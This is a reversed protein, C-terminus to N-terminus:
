LGDLSLLRKLFIQTPDGGRKGQELQIAALTAEREALDGGADRVARGHASAREFERVQEGILQGSGAQYSTAKRSQYRAAYADVEAEYAERLAALQEDSYSGYPGKEAAERALNRQYNWAGAGALVGLVLLLLLLRRVM